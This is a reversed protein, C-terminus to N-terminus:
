VLVDKKNFVYFSIVISAMSWILLVMISFDFNMGSVIRMKGTLYQPLNLNVVFFYKAAEIDDLFVSLINGGILASMMIGISAGISKVFISIMFSISGVVISIFFSLASMILIYYWQYIGVVNSADVKGAIVKYGTIVPEGFGTRKFVVLSVILPIITTLFVVFASMIILAIYKSLLIKWRPVARTLLVKITRSSFESSVIDSALIIVLLPLLLTVSQAMINSTFNGATPTIPNINNKLYYRYQEMQINISKEESKKVTRYKLKSQLDQIQQNILPRWNYSSSNSNVYSRVTRQYKNNQGYAFACAEILIIAMILIVKKKFLMKIIENKILKIM